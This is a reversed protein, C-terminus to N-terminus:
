RSPSPQCHRRSSPRNLEKRKRLRLLVCTSMFVRLMLGAKLFGPRPGERLYVGGAWPHKLPSIKSSTVPVFLLPFPFPDHIM